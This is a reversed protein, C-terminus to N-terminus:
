ASGTAFEILFPGRRGFSHRLLDTFRELTEARAAEVGMSEAMRIWDLDPRNLEPADPQRILEDLVAGHRHQALAATNRGVM